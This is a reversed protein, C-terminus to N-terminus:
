WISPIKIRATEAFYSLLAAQKDTARKIRCYSEALSNLKMRDEESFSNLNVDLSIVEQKKNPLMKLVEEKTRRIMFKKSLLVGLEKINSVGSSDWGFNTQKGDCYRKSYNLFNGFFYEDIFTLQTYLENPRSLAPTGSLLIVRRAIKCLTAAAATCKAKFNKFTHSEDIIIVGFNREILKETCRQLLDPSVILVKSDGIYDRATVMYQTHM